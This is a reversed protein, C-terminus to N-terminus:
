RASEIQLQRRRAHARRLGESIRERQEPTRPSQKELGGGEARKKAHWELASARKRETTEPSVTGLERERERRAAQAAKMKALAEPAAKRGRHTECMRERYEPDSWLNKVSEAIKAKMEDPFSERSLAGKSKKQKVGEPDIRGRLAAGIKAKHEETHPGYSRGMCSASLKARDEATFVYGVVGEGGDTKNCLDLGAARWFAIRRRELDFADNETLNTEVIRVEVPFNNKMLYNIVNQHHRSRRVLDYARGGKGKGVYFCTEKDSRWHEYVYFVGM